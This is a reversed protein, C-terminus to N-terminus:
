ERQRYRQDRRGVTGRHQQDREVAEAEVVGLVIFGLVQQGQSFAANPGLRHQGRKRGGREGIVVGDGGTQVRRMM